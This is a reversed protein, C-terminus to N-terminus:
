GMITMFSERRAQADDLGEAAMIAVRECFQDLQDETPRAQIKAMESYLWREDEELKTEMM